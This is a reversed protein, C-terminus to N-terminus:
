EKKEECEGFKNAITIAALINECIYTKETMFDGVQRIKCM